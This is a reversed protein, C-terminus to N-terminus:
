PSYYSWGIVNVDRGGVIGPTGVELRAWLRPNGTCATSGSGSTLCGTVDMLRLGGLQVFYDTTGTSGFYMCTGPACGDSPSGVVPSSTVKGGPNLRAAKFMDIGSAPPEVDYVFGDDAGFYWDGNADAAPTTNIAPSGDASGTYRLRLNLGADLIYLTGNQNGAGILDGGPCHCWYPARSFSGGLTAPAPGGSISYTPGSRGGGVNISALAVQGSSSTIALQISQGGAPTM